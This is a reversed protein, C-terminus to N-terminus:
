KYLKSIKSKFESWQGTNQSCSCFIEINISKRGYVPKIFSEYITIIDEFLENKIDSARFTLTVKDKLFHMTTCCSVDVTETLSNYYDKFPNALRIVMRRSGTEINQRINYLMDELVMENKDEASITYITTELKQNEKLNRLSPRDKFKLFLNSSTNKSVFADSKIKLYEDSEILKDLESHSLCFDELIILYSDNEVEPVKIEKLM